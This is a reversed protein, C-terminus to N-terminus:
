VKENSASNYTLLPLRVMVMTGTPQDLIELKGHHGNEILQKALFLGMGSGGIKTTVHPTFLRERVATPLGSGQDIIKIIAQGNEKELLVRVLSIKPSAEVANSILNTLASRLAPPVVKAQLPTAECEVEINTGHQAVELVVDNVLDALDVVEPAVSSGVGLALFSRLWHDIRHIQSRATAVLEEADRAGRLALEEVVLGLTNLPNRLTHGLGRALDGLEALHERAQWEKKEAELSV